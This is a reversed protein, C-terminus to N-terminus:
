AQRNFMSSDRILDYDFLTKLVKEARDFQDLIRCDFTTGDIKDECFNELFFMKAEQLKQLAKGKTENVARQQASDFVIM